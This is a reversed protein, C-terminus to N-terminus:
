SLAFMCEEAPSDIIGLLLNVSRYFQSQISIFMYHASHYVTSSWALGLLFYLRLTQQEVTCYTINM